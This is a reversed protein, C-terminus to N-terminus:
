ANYIEKTLAIYEEVSLTEPRRLTSIEYKNLIKTLQEKNLGRFGDIANLLTKRRQLFAKKILEFYLKEEKENLPREKKIYLNVVASDVKPVPSFYERPVDLVKECEAYYQLSLALIGYSSKGPKAIIKDAVESQVMITISTAAVHKEFISLLIPTTIYYPLNGVIRLVPTRDTLCEDMAATAKADECPWGRVAVGITDWDFTLIDDHVITVNPLTAFKARLIPILRDDLEVAIVRGAADALRETLAGLGPGIEVVTDEMTAGSLRVIEEITYTDELFNQGLSKKTKFDYSKNSM